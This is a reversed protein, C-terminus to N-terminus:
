VAVELIKAVAKVLVTKGNRGHGPGIAVPVIATLDDAGGHLRELRGCPDNQIVVLERIEFFVADTRVQHLGAEVFVAKLLLM